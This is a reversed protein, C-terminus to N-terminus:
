TARAPPGAQEHIIKSPLPMTVQRLLAVRTTPVRYCARAGPRGPALMERIGFLFM